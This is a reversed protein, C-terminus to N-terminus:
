TFLLRAILRSSRYGPHARLAVDPFQSEISISGRIDAALAAEDLSRVWTTDLVTATQAASM